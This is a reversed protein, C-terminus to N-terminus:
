REGQISEKHRELREGECRDVKDRLRDTNAFKKVQNNGGM